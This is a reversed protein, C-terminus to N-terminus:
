RQDEDEGPPALLATPPKPRPPTKVLGLRYLLGHLRGATARGGRETADAARVVAHIEEGYVLRLATRLSPIRTAAVAHFRRATVLWLPSVLLSLAIVAIALRSGAPDIAAASVGAAAIVFSFEGLQGMIVGAPFAREWPEGMLRLSGINIATKILVAFLLFALVTGLNDWIYDLDILLGISLFFVVLLVSQIPQTARITAKRDTSAAIVLGALFAGYAASLGLLGTLTAASFCFALAGLPILDPKGKIWDHTPLVIKQRRSLFWILAALMGIALTLKGLVAIGVGGEGGMADVLVLMPVVCLDQAILVAVTVRGVPSHLEGVDELMKIAVATSSLAVMFGMLVAQSTSWGLIAKLGFTVALSLAIQLLAAGLALKLVATFARLSLEMGILFLLMLVGLEALVSVNESNAVLGLGTPGLVVGALIYGVIAPQRLRTLFLGCLVAVTTTLALSTLDNAHAEM